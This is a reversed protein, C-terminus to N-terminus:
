DSLTVYHCFSMIVFHCLLGTINLLLLIAWSFEYLFFGFVAITSAVLILKISADHGVPNLVGVAVYSFLIDRLNKM